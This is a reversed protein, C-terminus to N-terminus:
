VNKSLQKNKELVNTLDNTLKFTPNVIPRKGIIFNIADNISDYNYKKMLYYLVITASRSRGMYCHILINSEKNQTQYQIILNYITDLHHIITDKNNDNLPCRNYIFDDPYYNRIENTINFIAGINMEKLVYYSAANYASGLYINDIIHTPNDFFWGHQEIFGTEPLIRNSNIDISNLEEILKSYDEVEDINEKDDNNNGNEVNDPIDWTTYYNIYEMSKDYSVKSIANIFHFINM